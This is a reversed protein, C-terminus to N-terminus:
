ALVSEQSRELADAADLMATALQRMLDAQM